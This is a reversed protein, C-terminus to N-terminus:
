RAIPLPTEVLPLGRSARNFLLRLYTNSRVGLRCLLVTQKVQSRTIKVEGGQAFRPNEAIRRLTLVAMGLAWLCFNRIGTESRPISLTYDLAHRLHAHAVGILELMAADFAANPPEKGLAELPYGHRAFVESPLWCAGRTLDARIDKLINVMQLGQGFSVAQHFFHESPQGMAPRYVSYLETLMEGVVGAVYYCYRNMDRQDVLGFCPRPQQHVIMGEGMIRVCREMAQRALPSFRQHWTVLREAQAILGHEAPITAPSLAASLERAFSAADEANNLCAQFRQTFRTKAELSLAPEDEITDITRCLLYAHAVAERLGAPLIPITLAFTRSVGLLQTHQWQLDESSVSVPSPKAM